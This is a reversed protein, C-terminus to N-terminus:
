WQYSRWVACTACRCEPMGPEAPRHPLATMTQTLFAADEWVSLTTREREPQRFPGTWGEAARQATRRTNAQRRDWRATLRAATRELRIRLAIMFAISFGAATLVQWMPYHHM